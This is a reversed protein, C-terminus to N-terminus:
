ASAPLLNMRAEIWRMLTETDRSEAIRAACEMSAQAISKEDRLRKLAEVVRPATFQRVSLGIGAGLREVRDANDPQDHAMHMILQPVGAALAQSMTGIGGHHVFVSAHKLLTSFPAYDVTLISAPLNPPVQKPERTVFVARCGSQEVANAAVEFFRSAQVNASGPTFVVPREGAALFAQLESQLQQERALDELPFSWQLLNRPWDPQPKAFWNPFLALVGDPSDWWERWLSRPPKVGNAECIRRVKPLAFLDVPNPLSFLARKFWVPMKRLLRMVPHLLPTEHVSLFVAPQLHVTILPTGRKERALRGAFATVPALMLDAKGCAEIAELYPEVSKAAFEFVVKTGHGLKWIRPDRIMAEFEEKEGLSIFELGAKKAHEEFLCATIMTVRHGRSMLHRGLWIFPFVDGASGFPLLLVNSM